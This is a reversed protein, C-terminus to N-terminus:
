KKNITSRNVSDTSNKEEIDKTVKIVREAATDAKDAAYNLKDKTPELYDIMKELMKAQMQANQRYLQIVLMFLFVIACLMIGMIATVFGTRLKGTIGPLLTKFERETEDIM